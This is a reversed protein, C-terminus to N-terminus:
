KKATLATHYNLLGRYLAFYAEEQGPIAPALTMQHTGTTKVFENVSVGITAWAPSYVGSLSSETGLRALNDLRNFFRTLETADGFSLELLLGSMQPRAKAVEKRLAEGQAQTVKKGASAAEFIPTMAKTLDNRITMWEPANLIEPFAPKGDRLLNVIDSATSSSFQVQRILEAPLLSSEAKIGKAQLPRIATMIDNLVAGSVIQEDTANAFEAKAVGVPTNKIRQEYAWQDAIMKRAEVDNGNGQGGAARLLRIQEQVIPNLAPNNAGGSYTGLGGSLANASYLSAAYPNVVGYPNLVNTFPLPSSYYSYSYFTNRVGTYPNVTNFGFSSGYSFNYGLNPGYYPNAFYLGTRYNAAPYYQASASGALVLILLTSFLWKRFM